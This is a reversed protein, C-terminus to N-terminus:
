SSVAFQGRSSRRRGGQCLCTPLVVSKSTNLETPAIEDERVDHVACHVDRVSTRLKKRPALLRASHRGSCRLMWHTLSNCGVFIGLLVPSATRKSHTSPNQTSKVIWHVSSMFRVKKRPSGLDLWVLQLGLLLRFSEATCQSVM